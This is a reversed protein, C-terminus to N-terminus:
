LNRYKQINQICSIAKRLLYIKSSSYVLYIGAKHFMCDTGSFFFRYFKGLPIAYNLELYFFPSDTNNESIISTSFYHRHSQISFSIVIQAMISGITISYISLLHLGLQSSFLITSQLM